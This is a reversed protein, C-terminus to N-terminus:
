FNDKIKQILKKYKDNTDEGYLDPNLTERDDSVRINFYTGDILMITKNIITMITYLIKTNDTIRVLNETGEPELKVEELLSIKDKNYQTFFLNNITSRDTSNIILTTNGHSLRNRIKRLEEIHQWYVIKSIDYGSLLEIYKIASLINSYGKRATNFDPPIKCDYYKQMEFAFRIIAKEFITYIKILISENITSKINDTNHWESTFTQKFEPFSLDFNEEKYKAMLEQDFEEEIEIIGSDLKNDILHISKEIYSLELRTYYFIFEGTKFTDKM